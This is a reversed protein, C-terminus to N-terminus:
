LANNYKYTSINKLSSKFANGDPTFADLTQHSPQRQRGPKSPQMRGADLNQHSCVAGRALNQNGM